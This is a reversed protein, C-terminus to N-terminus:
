GSICLLKIKFTHKEFLDSPGISCAGHAEFRSEHPMGSGVVNSGGTRRPTTGLQGEGGWCTVAAVRPEQAHVCPSDPNPALGPCGQTDKHQLSHSMVYCTFSVMVPPSLSPLLLSVANKALTKFWFGLIKMKGQTRCNLYSTPCGPIGM